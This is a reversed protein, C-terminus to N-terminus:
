CGEIVDVTPRETLTVTQTGANRYTYTREVTTDLPVRGVDYVTEDFVLGSSSVQGSRPTATQATTASRWFLVLGAVAAVTGLLVLLSVVWGYQAPARGSGGAAPSKSRSPRQTHRSMWEMGEMDPCEHLAVAVGQM